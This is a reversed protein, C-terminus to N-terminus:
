KKYFKYEYKYRTITQKGNDDEYWDYYDILGEKTYYGKMEEYKKKRYDRRYQLTLKNNKDYVLIEEEIVTDRKNLGSIGQRTFLKSIDEPLSDSNNQITFTATLNKKSDYFFYKNEKLLSDKEGKPTRPNRTMSETCILMNRKDYYYYIVGDFFGYEYNTWKATKGNNLYEIQLKYKLVSDGTEGYSKEILRNKKDYTFHWFLCGENHSYQQLISVEKKIDHFASTKKYELATDNTYVTQLVLRDKKDYTFYKKRNSFYHIGGTYPEEIYVALGKKNCRIQKLLITDPYEYTDTSYDKSILSTDIRKISGDTNFVTDASFIIEPEKEPPKKLAYRWLKAESIGHGIREEKIKNYKTQAFGTCVFFLFLAVMKEM